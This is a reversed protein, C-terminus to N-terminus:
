GTSSFGATQAVTHYDCVHEAWGKGDPLVCGLKKLRNRIVREKRDEFETLLYDIWDDEM